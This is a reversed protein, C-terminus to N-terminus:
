QNNYIQNNRQEEEWQKQMYCDYVTESYARHFHKIKSNISVPHKEKELLGVAKRFLDSEVMEHMLKNLNKWYTESPEENFVNLLSLKKM